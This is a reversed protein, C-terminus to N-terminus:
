ERRRHERWQGPTKKAGPVVLSFALQRHLRRGVGDVLIRIAATGVWAPGHRVQARDASGRFASHGGLAFAASRIGGGSLCLAWNNDANLCRDIEAIDNPRDKTREAVKIEAVEVSAGKEVATKQKPDSIDKDPDPAPTEGPGHSATSPTPRALAMREEWLVEAINLAPDSM